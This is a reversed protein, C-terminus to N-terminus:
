VTIDAEKAMRKVTECPYDQSEEASKLCFGCKGPEDESPEHLDLVALVMLGAVGYWQLHPEIETRIAQDLPHSM